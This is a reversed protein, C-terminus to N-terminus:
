DNIKGSSCILLTKQEKRTSTNSQQSLQLSMVVLYRDDEDESEDGAHGVEDVMDEVLGKHFYDNEIYLM